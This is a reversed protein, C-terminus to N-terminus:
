GPLFIRADINFRQHPKLRIPFIKNTFEDYWKIEIYDKYVKLDLAEKPLADPTVRAGNLWIVWEKAGEYVIGSLYIDREETPPKVKPEEITQDFSRDLESATPPRTLGRSAKADQIAVQEWYTFLLSPFTDADFVRLKKDQPRPTQEGQGQSAIVQAADRVQLEEHEQGAGNHIDALDSQAYLASASMVGAVLFGSMLTKFLKM